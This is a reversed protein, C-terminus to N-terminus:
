GARRAMKERSPLLSHTRIGRPSFSVPAFGEGLGRLFGRGRRSLTARTRRTLPTFPRRRWCIPLRPLPSDYRSARSLGRM